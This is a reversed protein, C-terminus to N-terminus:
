HRIVQIFFAMRCTAAVDTRPKDVKSMCNTTFYHLSAYIFQMIKVERFM